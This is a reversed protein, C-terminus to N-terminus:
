LGQGQLSREPLGVGNRSEWVLGSNQTMQIGEKSLGNAVSKFERYIHHFSIKLFQVEVMNLQELIPQSFVNEMRFSGIMWNIVLSDGFVRLETV